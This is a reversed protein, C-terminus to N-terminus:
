DPANEMALKEVLSEFAHDQSVAAVRFGLIRAAEAAISGIAAAPTREVLNSFQDPAMLVSLDEASAASTFVVFDFAAELDDGSTGPAPVAIYAAAQVVDAGAAQLAEPLSPRSAASRPLLVRKGALRGMGAVIQEIAYERPVLDAPLGNRELAARTVPGVAAIRARTGRLNVRLDHARKAVAEVGHATTFVVWDFSPWDALAADLPGPDVPPLIQVTPVAVVRAGSGVLAEGLKPVGDEPGAILITRGALPGDETALEGSM